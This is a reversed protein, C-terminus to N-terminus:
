NNVVFVAVDLGTKDCNGDQGSKRLIAEQNPYLNM